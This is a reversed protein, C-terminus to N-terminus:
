QLLYTNPYHQVKNSHKCGYFRGASLETAFPLSVSRGSRTFRYGYQLRSVIHQQALM